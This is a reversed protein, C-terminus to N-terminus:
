RRPRSGQGATAADGHLVIGLVRKRAEAEMAGLREQRARVRGMVVPDVAELHSPNSVLHMHVVRGSQTRYDGTAGQHYKVDGSGLVSRPNVDEFGAFIRSPPVGVISALVALRGRHSMGILAIEAGAGSAADIVADLLPVLAAAGELSYRKTGVYRAHLFREFLEAVALRELIRRRDADAPPPADREMREAIFRRRAADPIHMFEAGITGCYIARLRDAEAGRSVDLEEVPVPDLRGLPDLAAQLYGWRRFADTLRDDDDDDGLANRM